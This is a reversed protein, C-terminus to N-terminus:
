KYRYEYFLTTKYLFMGQLVTFLRKVVTSFSATGEILNIKVKYDYGTVNFKRIKREKILDITYGAKKEM